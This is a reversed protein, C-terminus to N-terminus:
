LTKHCQHVLQLIYLIQYCVFSASSILNSSSICFKKHNKKKPKKVKYFTSLKYLLFTDIYLQSTSLTIFTLLSYTWLFSNPHGFSNTFMIITLYNLFYTKLYLILLMLIISIKPSFAQTLLCRIPGVASQGLM